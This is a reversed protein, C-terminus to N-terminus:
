LYGKRPVKVHWTVILPEVKVLAAGIATTVDYPVKAELLSMMYYGSAVDYQEDSINLGRHAAKLADELTIEKGDKDRYVVKEGGLLMSVTKALKIQLDDIEVGAFVPALRSDGMVKSYFKRTITEIRREGGAQDLLSGDSM